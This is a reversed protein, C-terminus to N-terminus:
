LDFDGFSAILMFAVIVREPVGGLWVCAGAVFSEEVRVRCVSVFYRLIIPLIEILSSNSHLYLISLSIFFCSPFNPALSHPMPCFSKKQPHRPLPMTITEMGWFVDLANNRTKARHILVPLWTQQLNNYFSKPIREM